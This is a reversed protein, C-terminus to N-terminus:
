SFLFRRLARLGSDVEWGSHGDPRIGQTPIPVRGCLHCHSNRVRQDSGM